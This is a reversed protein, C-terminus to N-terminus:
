AYHLAVLGNGQEIGTQQCIGRKYGFNFFLSVRFFSETKCVFTDFTATFLPRASFTTNYFFQCFVIWMEIAHVVTNRFTDDAM